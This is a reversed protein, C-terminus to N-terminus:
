AMEWEEFPLGDSALGDNPDELCDDAEAMVAEGVAANIDFGGHKLLQNIRVAERWHNQAKVIRESVYRRSIRQVVPGTRTYRSVARNAYDVCANLHAEVDDASVHHKQETKVKTM